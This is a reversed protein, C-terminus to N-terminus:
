TRRRVIEAEEEDGVIDDMLIKQQKSEFPSNIKDYINTENKETKKAQIRFHNSHSHSPTHTHVFKVFTKQKKKEWNKSIKKRRKEKPVVVIILYLSQQTQTSIM